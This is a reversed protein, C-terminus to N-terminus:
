ARGHVEGAPRARRDRPLDCQRPHRGPGTRGDKSKSPLNVAGKSTNYWTLGHRPRIGATSGVNLIVGRRRQRMLPVVALAMHYISQVNVAFMRDFSVEDVNLMPQNAHSTGANNALIDPVGFSEACAPVLTAVDAGVSVDSRVLRAVAGLQRALAEGTAADLDALVVRAGQEAFLRVIGEGFGAAGGTDTAVKGELQKM